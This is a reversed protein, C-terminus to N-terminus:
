DLVCILIENKINSCECCIRLIQNINTFEVRLFCKTCEIFLKEEKDNIM